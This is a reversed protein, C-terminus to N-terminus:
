LEPPLQGLSARVMSALTGATLGDAQPLPAEGPLLELLLLANQYYLRAERNKGRRRYLEALAHHALVHDPALYLTRRLAQLAQDSDEQARLLLAHLYHVDPSLKDAVIAKACWGLAEELSGQDACARARAAYAGAPPAALPEAPAAAPPPPPAPAPAPPTAPSLWAAPARPEVARKRHLVAGPFSVSEFLAPDALAAEAPSLVLWGEPALQRHFQRLIHRAEEPAFYILVNRCLIVDLSRQGALLSLAPDDM